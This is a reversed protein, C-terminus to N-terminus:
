RGTKNCGSCGTSTTDERMSNVLEQEYQTTDIVICEIEVQANAPLSSVEITSRAPFPEKFYTGYIENMEKFKSLDTMFVTTKVVSKLDLNIEKLLAKINEFVQVTQEKLDDSVLKNTIPELPVQGSLFIFDGIKIGPSYPGIATPANRSSIVKKM